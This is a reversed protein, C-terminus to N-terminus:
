YHEEQKSAESGPGRNSKRGAHGHTQCTAAEPGGSKADGRVTKGTTTGGHKAHQCGEPIQTPIRMGHGTPTVASQDDRRRPIAMEVAQGRKIAKTSKHICRRGTAFNFSFRGASSSVFLNERVSPNRSM